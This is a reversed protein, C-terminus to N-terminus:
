KILNSNNKYINWTSEIIKKLSSNPCTWGIQNKALACNAMVSDIDGTRSNEIQYCIDVKTVKRAMKLIDMVSYGRETGLNIVLNKKKTNLYELAKIHANALDNVHVYDRIGTGDKTIYQNGFISLYPKLGIAVEMVNPILNKSNIEIGKIRNRIDYGAANFYRLSAYRLNYLKSYWELNKEIALKTYGYYSNPNKPHLEDIPNYKPNGYIAASSSFIFNNINFEICKNIFNLSGIINNETYLKPNVMSEGSAKNAALHIVGDFNNNKFLNSIDKISKTSGVILQADPHINSKNATSLDDFITVEYNNELATLVVHSGIYGAGGTVLLKM